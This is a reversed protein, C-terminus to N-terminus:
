TPWVQLIGPAVSLWSRHPFLFIVALFGSWSPESWGSIIGRGPLLRRRRLRPYDPRPWRCRIHSALQKINELHIVPTGEKLFRSVVFKGKNIRHDESLQLGSKLFGQRRQEAGVAAIGGGVNIYAKARGEKFYLSM